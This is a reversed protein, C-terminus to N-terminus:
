LTNQQTKVSMGIHVKRWMRRTFYGHKRVKWAGEGYVKLGTSDFVVHLPEKNQIAQLPLQVKSARRCMLSYDPSTVFLGMLEILSELYGQTTRYTLRFVQKIMLACVIAENSYLQLRGRKGSHETSNGNTSLMM